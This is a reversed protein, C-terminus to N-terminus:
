IFPTGHLPFTQHGDGGAELIAEDASLTRATFKQEGTGATSPGSEM